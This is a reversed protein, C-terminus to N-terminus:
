KILDSLQNNLKFSAEKQADFADDIFDNINEGLKQRMVRGEYKVFEYYGFNENESNEPDAPRGSLEEASVKYIIESEPDEAPKLKYANRKIFNSLIESTIEPKKIKSKIETPQSATQIVGTNIALSQVQYLPFNFFKDTRVIIKDTLVPNYRGIAVSFILAIFCLGVIQMVLPREEFKEITESKASETKDKVDIFIWNYINKIFDFESVPKNLTNNMSTIRNAIIKEKDYNDEASEEYKQTWESVIKEDIEFNPKNIEKEDALTKDLALTLKKNERPKYEENIFYGNDAPVSPSKITENVPEPRIKFETFLFDAINKGAQNKDTKILGFNEQEKPM